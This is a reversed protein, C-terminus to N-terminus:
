EGKSLTDKRYIMYYNGIICLITFIFVVLLDIWKKAFIDSLPLDNFEDKIGLFAFSAREYHKTISSQELYDRNTEYSSFHSLVQIEHPKDLNLSKFLGGPVQNDPDMTDGIQPIILVFVLWIVFCIILANSLNKMKLSLFSSLSFFMVVYIISLLIVILLKINELGSLAAHGIFVLSLWSIIGIFIVTTGILLTNGLLKGSIIDARKVPRTLILQLTRRNKEKAISYYGLVIGLVAGIIELYDVFGRLLKLPSFQPESFAIIKGSEKLAQISKQYDLVKSQFLLSAVIISTITLVVLLLFVVLFLKNNMADKYEKTAILFVNNM